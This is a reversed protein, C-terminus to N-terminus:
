FIFKNASFFSTCFLKQLTRPLSQIVVTPPSQDKAFGAAHSTTKSQLAAVSFTFAPIQGSDDRIRSSYGLICTFAQKHLQRRFKRVQARSHVARWIHSYAGANSRADLTALARVSGRRRGSFLIHGDPLLSPQAHISLFTPYSLSTRRLATM